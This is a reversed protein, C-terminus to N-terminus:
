YVVLQQQDGIFKPDQQKNNNLAFQRTKQTVYDALQGLNMQKSQQNSQEGSIAKLLFFTFVGHQLSDDGYAVQQNSAASLVSFGAPLADANQKLNVARQNQVLTQGVRNTGSFCTDLFVVVSKAGAQSIQKFLNKQNIATEELLDTNVDFPLFYKQKVQEQSLGHGSFYIYVDTKGANIHAPLWYKFALLIDARQANNDTLLKVNEPKVGLYRVAHEKFQNADNIAYSAHPLNKYNQVGIVIAVADRVKGIIKADPMTVSKDLVRDKLISSRLTEIKKKEFDPNQLDNVKNIANQSAATKTVLANNSWIGTLAPKGDTFSYTGKGERKGFQYEGVYKDGNSFFYMGFGHKLGNKFEGQYHDGQYKDATFELIGRGDFKGLMFDGAYSYEDDDIVGRCSHWQRVDGSKCTPLTNQASLLGSFALLMLGFFINQIPNLFKM